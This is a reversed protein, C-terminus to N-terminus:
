QRAACAGGSPSIAPVTALARLGAAKQPNVDMGADM